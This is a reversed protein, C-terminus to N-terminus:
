AVEFGSPRRIPERAKGTSDALSVGGGGATVAAEVETAAAASTGPGGPGGPGM